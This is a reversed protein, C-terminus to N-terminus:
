EITLNKAQEGMSQRTQRNGQPLGFVGKEGEPLFGTPVGGTTIEPANNTQSVVLPLRQHFTVNRREYLLYTSYVHDSGM